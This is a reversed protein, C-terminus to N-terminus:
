PPGREVDPAVLDYEGDARPALTYHDHEVLRHHFSCLPALEDLRTHRTHRFPNTHHYQIAVRRHCGVVACEDYLWDLATQVAATRTRGVHTVNLVDIGKTIVLKVMADNGLAARAVSVPVPGIGAIECIGEDSTPVRQLREADVRILVTTSPAGKVEGDGCQHTVIGYFADFAYADAPERRQAKRADRFIREQAARISARIHAGVDSTATWEGREAGDPDTWFRVSRRRHIRAHREECDEESLADAKVRAGLQKLGPLGDSQACELLSCEAHPAEAAAATVERAQDESLRGARLAQETASLGQLRHSTEVVAIAQGIGVGSRAALFHGASRHGDRKWRGTEDVRKMLLAKGAAGMREIDVFFDLWAVADDADMRDPELDHLLRGIGATMRSRISGAVVVAEEGPVIRSVPPLPLDM